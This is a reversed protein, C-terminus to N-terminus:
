STGESPREQTERLSIFGCTIAYDLDTVMRLTEEHTSPTRSGAGLFVGRDRGAHKAHYLGLDALQLSQDLNLLGPKDPFFPFDTYGISCTKQIVLGGGLDFTHARVQELIKQVFLHVYDPDTKKLVILFEEGGLRIVADDQRVSERLITSFQKLIQDGAEHGYTDNVKKFHDLDFMFLGFVSDEPISNRRNKSELMHTKYNAFAALDTQLIESIFRRNRLGTLPDTLSAEHLQQTRQAVLQELLQKQGRLKFTYVQIIGVIAAGGALIWLSIAWGTRYWPPRIRFAFAAEKSEVGYLNRAKVRFRYNGETLNTYEKRLLGSWPSWEKDFGELFYQFETTGPKEYFCAAFEFLLAERTYPLVPPEGGQVEVFVSRHGGPATGVVGHSGELLVTDQTAVRRILAQFRQTYDKPRGPQVGYLLKGPLWLTQSPDLGLGSDPIPLGRFPNVEARYSGDAQPLARFVGQETSQWVTGESGFLLSRSGVDQGFPSGFARHPVFRTTDGRLETAYLGKSTGVFLQGNRTSLSLAELSPLGDQIGFVQVAVQTPDSNLFRIRLLGQVENSAWLDGRGDVAMSRINVKIEKYRHVIKWGTGQKQVLVLGGLGGMFVRNSFQPVQALCYANSITSDLRIVEEGQVKVLGESTAALLEGDPTEMFKWVENPANKLSTFRPHTEKVPDHPQLVQLDQFTGVYFRSRHWAVDICVGRIGNRPGFAVQPLSWEISSIGSNTLAWLDGSQDVFLDGVTDDLLGDHTNIRRVARGSSEFVLIGGKLTCLAFRGEPLRHIKYLFLADAKALPAFDCPFSEVAKGPGSRTFDYRSHAEDWFAELNYLLFEGTVRGALLQHPGYSVLCTRSPVLKKGPLPVPRVRDGELACLGQERDVFFLVDRHVCAQGPTFRAQLTHIQGQVLRFVKTWTLFVVGDSTSLIQWVENFSRDAEPIRDKLSVALTKGKSDVALYGFDNESGYYITGDQARALSRVNGKGPLPTLTWRQGDFELVGASNGIFMVGRGDQVAAWNQSHAKYAEPEYNTILPSGSNQASLCVGVWMLLSALIRNGLM